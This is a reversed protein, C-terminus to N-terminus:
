LWAPLVVGIGGVRMIDERYVVRDSVSASSRTAVTYGTSVLWFNVRGPRDRRKHTVSPRSELEMGARRGYLFM